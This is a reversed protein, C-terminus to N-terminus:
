PPPRVRPFKKQGLVSAQSVLVPSLTSSSLFSHFFGSPIYPLPVFGQPNELMHNQPKLPCDEISMLDAAPIKYSKLMANRTRDPLALLREKILRAQTPDIEVSISDIQHVSAAEAFSGVGAFCDLVTQYEKVHSLLICEAMSFSTQCPNVAKSSGGGQLLKDTTKKVTVVQSSKGHLEFAARYKVSMNFFM